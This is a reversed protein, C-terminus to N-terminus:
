WWMTKQNFPSIVGRLHMAAMYAPMPAQCWTCILVVMANAGQQTTQSDTNTRSMTQFKRSNSVADVDIRSEAVLTANRNVLLDSGQIAINTGSMMADGGISVTSAQHGQTTMEYGEDTNLLHHAQGM